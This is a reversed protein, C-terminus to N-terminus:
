CEKTKGREPVCEGFQDLSYEKGDILVTKHDPSWKPGAISKERCWKELIQVPRERDRWMTVGRRHAHIM